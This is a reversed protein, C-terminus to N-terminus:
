SKRAQLHSRLLHPTGTSSSRGSDMEMGYQRFFRQSSSSSRRAFRFRSASFSASSASSRRIFGLNM